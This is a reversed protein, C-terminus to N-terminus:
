LIIAIRMAQIRDNQETKFYGITSAQDNNDSHILIADKHRIRNLFKKKM